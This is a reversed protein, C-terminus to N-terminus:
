FNINSALFHIYIDSMTKIIIKNKNAFNFKNFFSESLM